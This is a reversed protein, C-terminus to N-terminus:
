ATKGELFISILHMSFIIAGSLTYVTYNTLIGVIISLIAYPFIWLYPAFAIYKNHKLFAEKSPFAIDFGEMQFRGQLTVPQWEIKDGYGLLIAVTIHTLEHLFYITFTIPIAYLLNLLNFQFLFNFIFSVFYLGIVVLLFKVCWSKFSPTSGYISKYAENKSAEWKEKDYLRRHSM